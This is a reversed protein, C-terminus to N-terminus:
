ELKIVVFKEQWAYEQLNIDVEQWTVFVQGVFPPAITEQSFSSTINTISGEIENDNNSSLATEDLIEYNSPLATELMKNNSTSPLLMEDNISLSIGKNSTLSIRKNETTLVM